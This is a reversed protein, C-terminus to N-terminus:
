WLSLNGTLSISPSSENYSQGSATSYDNTNTFDASLSAYKVPSWAIDIGESLNFDSRNSQVPTNTMFIRAAPRVFPRISVSPIPNYSLGISLINDLRDFDDPDAQHYALDYTGILYLPITDSLPLLKTIQNDYVVENYFAHDNAHPDTFRSLNVTATWFWTRDESFVYQSSFSLNENDFDGSPETDYRVM